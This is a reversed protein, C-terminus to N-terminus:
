RPGSSITPSAKSFGIEGKPGQYVLDKHEVLGVELGPMKFKIVWPMLFGVMVLSLLVPILVSLITGTVKNQSFYYWLLVLQSVCLVGVCFGVWFYSGSREKRLHAQVRRKSLDAQDHHRNKSLCLRFQKLAGRYDKQKGLIIGIHFYPDGHEPKLRKATKAEMLAEDYHLTDETEDGKQTLLRCLTLHVQWRRSNDLTKLAKRLIDEADDFNHSRLHMTAIARPAEDNNPDISRAQHFESMAQETRGTQAYLYGLELHAIADDKNNELAKELNEQAKDHQKMTLYLAGLDRYSGQRPDMKISTQFLEKAERLNGRKFAIIGLCGYADASRSDIKLAKKCYGEAQDLRSSTSTISEGSARFSASTEVPRWRRRPADELRIVARALNTYALANHPDKEVVRGFTKSADRYRNQNFYVAGLGNLGLLHDPELKLIGQFENEALKLENRRLYLRGLRDMVEIDGPYTEKLDKLFELARYGDNMAILAAIRSFKLAIRNPLLDVAADFSENARDFKKQDVLLWGRENLIGSSKPHSNLARELSAEAEEYRRLLRLSAIKGSLAFEHQPDIRLADEFKNLANEYQKQDFCLCGEENLIEVDDPKLQFAKRIWIQAEQFCRQSRFCSIIWILVSSDGKEYVKIFVQAAKDYRNQDFLLWGLESQIGLHNPFNKINDQLLKGAEQFRRLLRLSAIKGQLAPAHDPRKTLIQDFVVLAEDYREDSYRLWGLESQIGARDRYIEAATEVLKKSKDFPLLSRFSTLTAELSGLGKVDGILEIAESYKGQDILQRAQEEVNAEDNTQNPASPMRGLALQERHLNEPHSM